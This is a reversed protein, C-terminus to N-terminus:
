AARGAYKMASVTIQQLIRVPLDRERVRNRRAEIVRQDPRLVGPQAVLPAGLVKGHGVLLREIRRPRKARVSPM